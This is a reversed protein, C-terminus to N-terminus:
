CKTKELFQAPEWVQMEASSYDKVNRTIIGDMENLAAVSYQVSDEFDNWELELAKQIEEESVGAVSVILLLKKLLERVAAKDRLDKAISEALVKVETDEGTIDNDADDDYNVSYKDLVDQVAEFYGDYDKGNYFFKTTSLNLDSIKEKCM